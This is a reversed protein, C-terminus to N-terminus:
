ERCRSGRRVGALVQDGVEAAFANLDIDAAALAIDRNGPLGLAGEVGLLRVGDQLQLQVPQRPKRDVLNQSLQRLNAARM